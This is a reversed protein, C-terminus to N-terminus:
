QRRRGFVTPTFPFPSAAQEAERLAQPKVVSFGTFEYHCPPEKCIFQLFGAMAQPNGTNGYASMVFHQIATNVYGNLFAQYGRNISRREAALEGLVGGAEGLVKLESDRQELEASIRQQKEERTIREFLRAVQERAAADGGRDTDSSNACDEGKRDRRHIWCNDVFQGTYAERQQRALLSMQERLTGGAIVGTAPAARNSEADSTIEPLLVSVGSSEADSRSTRDEGSEATSRSISESAAPVPDPVAETVAEHEKAVEPELIPASRVPRRTFSVQLYERPTTTEPTSASGFSQQTAWGVLLAHALVSAALAPWLFRTARPGLEADM